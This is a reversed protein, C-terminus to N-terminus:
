ENERACHWQKFVILIKLCQAGRITCKQYELRVESCVYGVVPVYLIRLIRCQTLLYRYVASGHDPHVIRGGLDDIDIAAYSPTEVPFMYLFSHTRRITYRTTALVNRPFFLMWFAQFCNKALDIFYARTELIDERDEVSTLSMDIRAGWLIGALCPNPQCTTTWVHVEPVEHM